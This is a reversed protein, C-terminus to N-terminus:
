GGTASNINVNSTAFRHLVNLQLVLNIAKARFNALEYPTLSMSNPLKVTMPDAPIGNQRFEYHCHPGTALGTSGVYGIIDGQYVKAGQKLNSKFRTMHGYRTEYGERHTLVILRGYGGKRGIFKVTGNGTAMIPTGRSAAFDTGKHSRMKHLVPHFRGPNFHSSVRAHAVPTRIFARKMERGNPTFFDSKGDERTFRVTRFEKNKNIFEAALLNQSGVKDGDHFVEEYVLTVRDGVRIDHAFDIDWDFVKIIQRITNGPVGAKKGDFFLGNKIVFSSRAQRIEFVKNLWQGEWIGEFGDSSPKIVYAKKYSPALLLEVLKNNVSRARVINDRKLEALVAKIKKDRLLTTISRDLGVKHLINAPNDYSKVTYSTWKSNIDIVQHGIYTEIARNPLSLKQFEPDLQFRPSFTESIESSQQESPTADISIAFNSSEITDRSTISSQFPINGLTAFCAVVIVGRMIWVSFTTSVKFLQQKKHIAKLKTKKTTSTSTNDPEDYSQIDFQGIVDNWSKKTDVSTKDTRLNM